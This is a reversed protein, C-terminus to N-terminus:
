HLMISTIIESGVARNLADRLNDLSFQLESKLSASAIYVHLCGNEVYRRTTQSNIWPGVVESWLYCLRHEDFTRSNGSAEIAERIIQDVRKAETKKM